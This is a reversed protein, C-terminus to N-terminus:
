GWCFKVISSGLIGLKGEDLVKIRRWWYRFGNIGKVLDGLKNRIEDKRCIRFFGLELIRL